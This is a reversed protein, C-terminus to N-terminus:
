ADHTIKPLLYKGDKEEILGTELFYKMIDKAVETDDRQDDPNEKRYEDLMHRLMAYWQKKSDGEM